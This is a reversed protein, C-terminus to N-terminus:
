GDCAVLFDGPQWSTFTIAVYDGVTVISKVQVYDNLGLKGPTLEQWSYGGRGDAAYFYVHGSYGFYVRDLYLTLSPQFSYVEVPLTSKPQPQDQYGLIQVNLARKFQVVRDNLQVKGSKEDLLQADMVVEIGFGELALSVMAVPRQIPKGAALAAGQDSTASWLAATYVPAAALPALVGILLVAAITAARGVMSLRNM